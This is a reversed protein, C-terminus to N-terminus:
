GETAARIIRPPLEWHGIDETSMVVPYIPKRENTGLICIFLLRNLEGSSIIAKM